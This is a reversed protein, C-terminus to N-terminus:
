DYALDAQEEVRQRMHKEGEAFVRVSEDTYEIEEIPLGTDLAMTLVMEDTYKGLIESRRFHKKLLRVAEDKEYVEKVCDWFTDQESEVLPKVSEVAEEFYETLEEGFKKKREADGFYNSYYLDSELFKRRDGDTIEGKAATEIILDTQEQFGSKVRAMEQRIEDRLISKLRDAPIDVEVVASPDLEDLARLSISKVYGDFEKKVAKETM